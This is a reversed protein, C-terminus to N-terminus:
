LHWSGILWQYIMDWFVQIRLLLATLLEVRM